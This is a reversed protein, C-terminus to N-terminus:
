SACVGTASSAPNYTVSVKPYITVSSSTTTYIVLYGACGEGLTFKSNASTASPEDYYSGSVCSISGCNAFQVYQADTLYYVTVPATSTWIDNYDFTDPVNQILYGTSAFTVTVGWIPVTNTVQNLQNQLNTVQNQLSTIQSNDSARQSQLSTINSQLSAIQSIDSSMEKQLSVTQNTLASNQANLSEVNSQLIANEKNLNSVTQQSNFYSVAFVTSLFVFAIMAVTLILTTHLKNPSASLM